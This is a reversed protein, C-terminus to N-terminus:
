RQLRNGCVWLVNKPHRFFFRDKGRQVRYRCFLDWGPAPRFRLELEVGKSTADGANTVISEDTQEDYERVQKDSLDMYFLSINAMLRDQFFTTKIGTEYNILYEADYTYISEDLKRNFGGAKYGRSVTAYAMAESTLDYAISAKPLAEDFDMEGKLSKQTLFDRVNGDLDLHELRLGATLHLKEYLTYTQEGFLAYGTSDTDTGSSTTITRTSIKQKWAGRYIKEDFMSIGAVWEFPGKDSRSIRFEQSYSEADLELTTELQKPAISTFDNDTVKSLDQNLATTVSIFDFKDGKYKVKLAQSHTNQRLYEESDKDVTHAPTALPGSIKRLAGAHDDMDTADVTLTIDLPAASPTWRLIGRGNLHELDAPNEIGTGINDYDGDSERYQFLGGLFLTDKVVPGSLAAGAKVSNNSGYESIVKGRFQNGPQRSQIVILGSETNRGYLTGQPGKLIEAQELDLLDINQMYSAPYFVDDAIIGANTGVSTHFTSMGRIVPYHFIPMEKMLVNPSFRTLTPISEIKADEIETGTFVDLSMPIKQADKAMKTAAQSKEEELTSSTVTMPAIEYPKKKKQKQRKQRLM